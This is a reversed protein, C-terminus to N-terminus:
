SLIQPLRDPIEGGIWTSGVDQMRDPLVEEGANEGIAQLSAGEYM